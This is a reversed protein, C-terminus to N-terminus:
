QNLSNNRLQGRLENALQHNGTAEARLIANQIGKYQQSPGMGYAPDVYNNAMDGRLANALQYNGTAEAEAIKKELLRYTNNGVVKIQGLADRSRPGRAVVSADAPTVPQTTPATEKKNWLNDWPTKGTKADATTMYDYAKGGGYGAAGGAVGGALAGGLGGYAGGAAAGVLGGGAGIMMNRQEKEGLGKWWDKASNWASEYWPADEATKELCAGKDLYYGAMYGLLLAKQAAEKQLM